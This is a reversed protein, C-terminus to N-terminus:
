KVLKRNKLRFMWEYSYPCIALVIAAAKRGKSLEKQTIIFKLQKQYEKGLEKALVRKKEKNDIIYWYLMRRKTETIHYQIWPVTEVYQYKKAFRKQEYFAELQDRFRKDSYSAITSNGREVYNYLMWPLVSVNQAKQVIKYVTAVDEFVKGEPFQIDELLEKKFIKDWLFSFVRIDKLIEVVIQEKSFLQESDFPSFKKIINDKEDVRKYGCIAIDSNHKKISRYLESIMDKEMYDDSDAFCIYDGKAMHLALNRAAAQGKNKQHIVQFRIDEQCYKDCIEPSRDTSGDDILIVELNQFSQNKISDLCRTLYSEVNYVPVIVSILNM